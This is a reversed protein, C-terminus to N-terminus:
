EANSSELLEQLKAKSARSDFKIGMDTLISIIEVKTMENEEHDTEETVEKSVEYPRYGLSKFEREYKEESVDMFVNTKHILM